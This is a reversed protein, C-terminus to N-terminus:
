FTRNRCFRFSTSDSRIGLSCVLILFKLCCCPLVLMPCTVTSMTLSNKLHQVFYVPNNGLAQLVILAFVCILNQSPAHLSDAIIDILRKRIQGPGRGYKSHWTDSNPRRGWLDCYSAASGEALLSMKASDSLGKSYGALVCVCLCLSVCVLAVVVDDHKRLWMDKVGQIAAM